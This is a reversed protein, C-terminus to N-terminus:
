QARHPINERLSGSRVIERFIYIYSIVQTLSQERRLHNKLPDFDAMTNFRNNIYGDQGSRMDGRAM